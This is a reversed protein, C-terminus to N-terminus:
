QIISICEADVYQLNIRDYKGQYISKLCSGGYLELISNYVIHSGM